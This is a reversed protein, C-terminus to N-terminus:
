GKTIDGSGTVKTDKKKPDGFYHIDGSGVVRAELFDSSNVKCDGSGTVKAYANNSELALANMDGSGTVECKITDAKGKLTMDGSGTVESTVQKANLDLRIDGSGSLTTKFDSAKIPNKTRVDGSGSLSVENLSEFPVTIRIEHGHSPVLYIGKEVGIKLMNGDLKIELYQVLNEEAKVTIKGEDGAVLDVDFFGTVRVGDYNGTSINKTTDNGNGKIKERSDWQASSILPFLFPLLLAAKFIFKFKPQTKM